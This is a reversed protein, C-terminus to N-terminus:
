GFHSQFYYIGLRVAFLVMEQELFMVPCPSKLQEPWMVLRDLTRALACCAPTQPVGPHPVESIRQLVKPWSHGPCCKSEQPLLFAPVKSQIQGPSLPPFPPPKLCRKSCRTFVRFCLAMTQHQGDVSLCPLFREAPPVYSESSHHTMGPGKHQGHPGFAMPEPCGPQMSAAPGTSDMNQFFLLLPRPIPGTDSGLATGHEVHPCGCRPQTDLWRVAGKSFTSKWAVTPSTM